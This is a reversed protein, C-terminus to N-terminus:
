RYFHCITITNTTSCQYRHTHDEHHMRIANTYNYSGFLMPKATKRQWERLNGYHKYSYQPHQNVPWTFIHHLLQPSSPILKRGYHATTLTTIAFLILSSSTHANPIYSTTNTTIPTRITNITFTDGQSSMTNVQRCYLTTMVHIATSYLHTHPPSKDNAYHYTNSSRIVCRQLSLTLQCYHSTHHHQATTLIHHISEM